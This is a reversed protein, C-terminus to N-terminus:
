RDLDWPTKHISVCPNAPDLDHGTLLSQACPIRAPCDNPARRKGAALILHLELDTVLSAQDPPLLDLAIFVASPAQATQPDSIGIVDGVLLKDGVTAFVQVSILPM